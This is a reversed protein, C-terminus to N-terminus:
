WVILTTVKKRLKTSIYAKLWLEYESPNIESKNKDYDYQQHHILKDYKDLTYTTYLRNNDAWSNGDYYLNSDAYIEYFTAQNSVPVPLHYM